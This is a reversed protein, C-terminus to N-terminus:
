EAIKAGALNSGWCIGDVQIDDEASNDVIVVVAKKGKYKSVDYIATSFQSPHTGTERLIEKGDVEVAVYLNARDERGMLMFMLHTYRLLFPNSRLTGTAGGRKGDVDRSGVWGKGQPGLHDRYFAIRDRGRDVTKKAFAGESNQWRELGRREFDSNPFVAHCREFHSLPIDTRYNVISQRNLNWTGFWMDSSLGLGIVGIGLATLLLPGWTGTKKDVDKFVLLLCFAHFTAFAAFRMTDWAAMILLLPAFLALPTLISVWLRSRSFLRRGIVALWFCIPIYTSPILYRDQLEDLGTFFTEPMYHVISRKIPQIAQDIVAADMVGFGQIQERLVELTRDDILLQSASVAVLMLLPVAVNLAFYAIRRRPGIADSHHRLQHIVALLVVPLGFLAYIEHTAVAVASLLAPIVFRGRQVAFISLLSYLLLFHDLFGNNNGMMVAAPSVAFALLAVITEAHSRDFTERAKLRSLLIERIGLGIVFVLVCLVFTALIHVCDRIEGPTKLHFLPTVLTGVLGRKIFGAHYSLFWQSFPYGGPLQMGRGVITVFIGTILVSLVTYGSRTCLRRNILHRFTDTLYFRLKPIMYTGNKIAKKTSVCGELALGRARVGRRGM